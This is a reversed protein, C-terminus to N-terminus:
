PMPPLGRVIPSAEGQELYHKLDALLHRGDRAVLALLWWRALAGVPGRAVLEAHFSVEARNATVPTVRWRNRARAVFGPLGSTAEYTLTRADDDFAVITETVEPVAPLGTRCVRAAVPAAM